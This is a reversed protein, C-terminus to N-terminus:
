TTPRIDFNPMINPSLLYRSRWFSVFLQGNALNRGKPRIEQSPALFPWKKVVTTLKPKRVKQASRVRCYKAYFHTPKEPRFNGPFPRLYFPPFVRASEDHSLFSFMFHHTKEQFTKKKSIPLDVSFPCFDFWFRGQFSIQLWHIDPYIQCLKAAESEMRDAFWWKVGREAARAESDAVHTRPSAAPDGGIWGPPTKKTEFSAFILIALSSGFRHFFIDLSFGFQIWVYGCTMVTWSQWAQRRHYIKEAWPCEPLVPTQSHQQKLKWTTRSLRWTLQKLIVLM